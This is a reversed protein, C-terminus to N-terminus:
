DVKKDSNKIDFNEFDGANVVTWNEYSKFYKKIAKNVDEVKLSSVKDEINEPVIEANSTDITDTNQYSLILEQRKKKLEDFLFTNSM